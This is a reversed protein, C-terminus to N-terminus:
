RVTVTSNVAAEDVDSVRLGFRFRWRGAVPLAVTGTARDTGIARLPVTVPAVGRTPLSATAFWELVRLPKGDPTTATLAVSNDGVAAPGITVRLSYLKTALTASYPPTSRVLAARAPVTQVLVVTVALIVAALGLETGVAWRLGTRPPGGARPRHV